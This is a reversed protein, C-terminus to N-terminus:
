ATGGEPRSPHRQENTVAVELLQVGRGAFIARVLGDLGFGVPEDRLARNAGCHRRKALGLRVSCGAVYAM